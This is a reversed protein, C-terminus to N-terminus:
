YYYIEKYGGQDALAKAVAVTDKTALYLCEFFAFYAFRVWHYTFRFGINLFETFMALAAKFTSDRSLEPGIHYCTVKGSLVTSFPLLVNLCYAIFVIFRFMRSMANARHRTTISM